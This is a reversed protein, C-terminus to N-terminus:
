GRTVMEQPRVVCVGNPPVIHLVGIFEGSTYITRLNSIPVRAHQALYILSPLHQFPNLSDGITRNILTSAESSEITISEWTKRNGWDGCPNWGVGESFVTAVHDHPFLKNDHVDVSRWDDPLAGPPPLLHRQGDAFEIVQAALLRGFHVFAKRRREPQSSPRLKFDYHDLSVHDTLGTTQRPSCQL